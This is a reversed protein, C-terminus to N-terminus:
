VSGIYLCVVTFYLLFTFCYPFCIQTTALQWAQTAEWSACKNLTTQGVCGKTKHRSIVLDKPMHDGSINEEKSIRQPAEEQNAIIICFIREKKRLM